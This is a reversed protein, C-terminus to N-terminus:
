YPTSVVWGSGLADPDSAYPDSVNIPVGRTGDFCLGKKVDFEGQFCYSSSKTIVASVSVSTANNSVDTKGELVTLLQEVEFRANVAAKTLDNLVVTCDQFCKIVSM